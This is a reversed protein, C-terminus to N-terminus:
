IQNDDRKRFISAMNCMKLRLTMYSLKYLKIGRKVTIGQLTYFKCLEHHHNMELFIIIGDKITETYKIQIEM